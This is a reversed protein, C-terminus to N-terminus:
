VLESLTAARRASKTPDRVEPRRVGPAALVAAVLLVVGQGLLLWRTSVPISWRVLGAEGPVEFAQQWGDTVPALPRDDLSATWRPDAAEGIRLLRNAPGPPVSAPARGVALDNPEAALTRRSVAPNLQWVTGRETGSATGLGPTNDIRSLTAEDAGTVWVYGIGLRGLQPAIDSDATGAVVRVVLDDVQERADRSGGFPGGRDADGLRLHGDALVSYRATGASLDLALLRPQTDSRLGNLVYPPIADLRTRDIPGTAGALVWWVAGGLSVLGIAVAALLAAPQLWSFSRERMQLALGDVGMGGGVLLAAFAILLYSGVWPRVETGVPPVSVVLRSLVVAMALGVLAVIWASVVARRDPRRVLGLLAVLWIVGFIVAGVWLPPLGPGSPRGLLLTWTAPAEPPGGLAADPGVFLRGPTAIVSPWWPALVVLPLGLAIGIRGIKRPTRRLVIAGLVGLVLAPILLSPEFAVLAVLVVGAGWGGRWAEPIGVRRLVLARVASILLPLGIAVVSLGLRGQNTGGLLVPLLAYTGSVWLRLRRENIVRRIVPYATLFALPVVGCLLVTSFWEPQAALVTSGLATLALWPPTIQDPAGPIPALVADWLAGLRDYSPLLAPAALVGAGILGRAAVVSAALALVTMIVVPSLLVNKPREEGMASFDDGTLEDLSAADADGAVSRYRDSVAGGVAEAAVRLSNWWPPRLNQIVEDTGPVPNIAATRKRLRVIRGPQGVFAGLALIEDLARGPVKGLLYGTAHVLCSWVLRLLVLPLLRAPAHGAVVVMGLVRDVMGPRRGTVGSPRLGARGVQRHTVLASPTTVVRYGNLHARWGFEVGDRFVPIGPDLGGLENWVSTRVLMGCTSVGLRAQPQDRQGQDIEGSDLGLDRRGTGSISVGVESIQQGAQRRRPLLLKPGTIDITRDARVHSLLEYLADPEPQADDHLLWLWHSEEAGQEADQRLASKVAAGFGYRRKGTYVADILGEAVAQNLLDRTADTSDNDIAILRTPRHQLGALSDLTAPLWRGADFAVLVATVRLGSLDLPADPDEDEEVWAWPDADATPPLDDLDKPELTSPFSLHRQGTATM